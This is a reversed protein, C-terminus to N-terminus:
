DVPIVEIASVKPQNVTASFDIDLNGDTVTVTREVVHATMPGVVANLDLNTVEAPGGELNASFVRKGTGGAGGGTAGHYIEAFHLRVLYQGGAVGVNYGFTGLNTTSSRETLYLVDNTTGAIATVAPNTYTKGGAFATDASWQVGGATTVAGGGANIRVPAEPQDPLDVTVASTPASVTGSYDVALVRYFGTDAAPPNADTFTAGRVPTAGTLRTWPGSAATAREVHYGIVDDEPTATWSLVVDEEVVEGGLGTPAAPATTSHPTVPFVNTVLYVNDQFDCNTPGTGCQNPSSIYDHGVIWAGPVANGDRDIVPWTKSAMYNTNNTTQGNVVIGFNGSPNASLQTPGTLANNLPLISQGYAGNHTATTGGINITETQGCCGHFAALQRVVVPQAPNARKWLLSRVEDGNLPSTRMEDGNELTGIDTQWGFLASIQNLTLESGGEPQTMYGGRVQVTTVPSAPDSSTLVIQAARVGRGGSNATFTVELPLSSGPAIVFPSAPAGTLTFQSANAGTLAVDTVRLNKTGTNTVTVTAKDIVEHTTVGGNIRHLTVWDESMGPIPQGGARTVQENRLTLTGGVDLVEVDVERVTTRGEGDVATVELVHEGLPLSFPATYVVAAGDDIRYTLSAITAGGPATATLAAQGPGGTYSDGVAVGNVTVGVSPALLGQGTIRIWNVKTNEGANTLTLRGDTVSVTATGTTFPTGATPTFDDVVTVGEVAVGHTSDLFGADGVSVDVRYTGNGLVYEWTGNTYSPQSSNDLFTFSKRVNEAPYAIGGSAAARYRTAATRDVPAGTDANLWGYGRAVSFATGTEVLWGPTTPATAPAFAVQVDEEAPPPEELGDGTISVWNIKTNTGSNAISLKGDTVTVTRVGTQFPTTATPVFSAIVPQGEATVGHTSDLHNADGVSVAVEYTGNPVAYEWRGNTYTPQSANDLFAFSKLTDKTPFTIGSMPGTRHRTAATRDVPAGTAANVWGFGRADSYALGTEATWGDVAPASAPAFHIKVQAGDSPDDGGPDTAGTPVVDIYNIKTNTGGEADVTLAGDTVTVEVTVTKHRSNAGAAGTPVFPPTIAPEGEVNIVHREPDSNVASDGAAVTVEYTGNPLALEWFAYASVGNFTSGSATVDASQMHMVTDLRQDAQATNRDRGNGPGTAGGVSLDIPQGNTENRWGFTLGSGQDSRTRAGFPQGFDRLYGTPLAAAQNSFNVRIAEEVPATGGAPRVGSLLFVYDQFDGNNADEFAVVYSNPIPAGSRTRAPYVRARHADAAPSNLRDETFGYRSFVGSHYYVGFEANGPDFTTSGGARVPPLLSQYGSIDIQGIERRESATGDGTYWGFPLHERPAYHALPRMTVPGSGARVFLPELVEQGKAQPQMGGALTTWGVDIGYGLTGVVDKLPPENGGEIGNMSLGYLGVAVSRGDASLQLSASRQGVATGPKFAVSVTTSAGPALTVSAPSGLTFEGANTGTVGVQLTVGEASSNTVTVTRTASTTSKVTSFILEDASTTLTAARHEEPVRLLFLQQDSGGRNYQNVYLNGTSPDEVVELPDNFGDVGSMTSGPVGTLGTSAQEGLIEGTAPDVQLFLLDNNDSFRTVVLRGKLQGGFTESQYELAGNPSKNFGLDWAIGRYNPDPLQGSPYRTGGQGAAVPPNAPDNGEHLVWECREPNPHGYYGGQEVQYLHDRQTPHNAIPPVTGGTYPKRDIRNSTCAATVDRNNVSAFGPIGAAAKRTFTGNANATVGPSNANGATGNTPVYLHGSSHWVLDYANRIGTAFIQLPANPAYPNYTGGEATKVDIPGGAGAAAVVAPHAPDFRLTAATLLTEGRQGWSNDLDGAAQNSGQLFYLSGDPGYALSNTLHDSQSRPLNDFIEQENQLNPGSLLSIGSVWKDPENSVNPSTKTVWLRLNDATAAKDFVLGIMAFGFYGLSEMNSLTGDDNVTFRWLGQGITTGYMKGDPGFAFSSWYKDAAIPLEEKEFEIGTLPTFEDGGVVDGTGTTFVSTFPLFSAGLNDKVGSTVVFRYSTRAKLTASPALTIVDNGGSTNVTVPVPTGSPLEYLHVNGQLTAGNVGVGAYPIRITASVGDRTGHETARNYPLVGDVHPALPQGTVEVYALKTNTGGQPDLTLRGDWVGVTVTAVHYEGTASAQFAEIGVAGEVNVAHLSDYGNTGRQDGVAVTVEYLGDPLALEWTGEADVGDSGEVDGYQMHLVSDLKPDVGARARVRGNGVLSVPNGDETAWGYSHGTGQHAGTRTGYAQGYDLLYGAAPTAAATAFDVKLAVTNEPRPVAYVENSAVSENGAADVATVVYFYTTGNTVSTDTFTPGAVPAAGSVPAGTLEVGNELARYVHYGVTDGSTSATWALAVAGDGAEAALATPALPAQTDPTATRRGVAENSAASQIGDADVATVVYYYTVGVAATTDSYTEADVPAAGSLPTGTTGVGPTTGRYVHYGVVGETVSPTWALDISAAGASALVDTPPLVEEISVTAENSVVSANGAADVATVVYYYTEGPTVAPDLFTTGSLLTSGSYPTGGAVVGPETGRYVRYGLTDSSVSAQWGLTVASDTATATLATPAAPPTVDPGDPGEIEVDIEADWRNEYYEVVVTHTGPELDVEATHVQWGNQPEWKDIVTEGDVIVRVGDDARAQFVHTGEGAITTSWRASFHDTGVGAPGGSGWAESVEDVCERLLVQGALGTGGFYEASWQGPACEAPGDPEDVAFWEVDIEADWRNEYYEVVVTHTGPELDVEATHVQWGNQPEWKDIVTEGDVIVRVGDDARAQFVHTGEGAITTSWRASF